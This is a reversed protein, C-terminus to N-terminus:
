LADVSIDWTHNILLKQLNVPVVEGLKFFIDSIDFVFGEKEEKSVVNLTELKTCKELLLPLLDIAESSFPAEYYNLNQGYNIVTETLSTLNEADRSESSWLVLISELSGETHRILTCLQKVAIVGLSIELEKLQTFK